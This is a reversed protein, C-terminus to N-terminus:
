FVVKEIFLDELMSITFFFCFVSMMYRNLFSSCYDILHSINKILFFIVVILAKNFLAKIPILTTIITFVCM